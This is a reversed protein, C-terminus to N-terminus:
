NVLGIQRLRMTEDFSFQRDIIDERGRATRAAASRMVSNIDLGQSMARTTLRTVEDYDGQAQAEAIERGYSQVRDRLRTQDKWLESGVEWQTQVWTPSFGLIHMLTEGIGLGSISPYGTTMSRIVRDSETQLMRYVSRPTLARIFQDRNARNTFPTSGTDWWLDVAQDTAQALRRARDFFAFSTMFSMDQAPDSFPLAAQSSLTIGPLGVLTPVYASLGWMVADAPSGDRLDSDGLWDYLHNMFPEDTFMKSIQNAMMYIPTAAIGGVTTAGAIAWALPAMHGKSAAGAYEMLNFVYHTMWNKFLGFLSGLPTTFIRSRDATGYLFMTNHTFQKAFRYLNEGSLGMMDRGLMHGTLFAHTRAFKESNAPLWESLALLGRWFEGPEEFVRWLSEVNRSQEGVYEEFLRPAIVGDDAARQFDDLLVKRHAGRLAEPSTSGPSRMEKFTNRMFKLTDFVGMPGRVRNMSDIGPIMNYYRMMQPPTAGQVFAVHPIVTHMFTLANITPFALNGMGLQFSFVIDNVTRVIRTASDVGLWPSLVKDVLQNQMRSFTSPKGALDNLRASLTSFARPDDDALKRLIPEMLHNASAEAITRNAQRIHANLIDKLERKTWPAKDGVFGRQGERPKTFGPQGTRRTSYSAALQWDPTGVMVEKASALDDTQNRAWPEGQIKWAKGDRGAEAVIEDAERIAQGRSGGSAIYVTQGLENEVAARWDGKWTRSIMYHQPLPVLTPNNTLEMTRSYQDVLYDDNAQLDRMLDVVRESAGEELAEEPTRALRWQQHLQVVDADTLADIQQMIGGSPELGRGVVGLLSRSKLENRGYLMRESIQAARDYAIRSMSQAWAATANNRHQFMAPALYEDVFNRLVQKTVSSEGGLKLRAEMVRMIESKNGRLGLWTTIPVDNMARALASHVDARNDVDIKALGGYGSSNAVVDAWKSQGPLFRGPMDTKFLLWRDGRGGRSTGQIRRAMVFMGQEIERALYTQDDVQAYREFRSLLNRASSRSHATILRPFQMYGIDDRGYGAGDLVRVWDRGAGDSTDALLQTERTVTGSRNRVVGTQFTRNLWDSIDKPTGQLPRVTRGAPREVRIRRELEAINSELTPLEEPGAGERRSVLQRQQLQLPDRLDVGPIERATREIQRGGGAFAGIVGGAAGAILTDLGAQIAVEGVNNGAFAAVVPRSAEIPAFRLAERAATGRVPANRVLQQTLANVGESYRTAPSFVRGVAGPTRGLRAAGLAAGYPSAFGLLSSVFGGLPNEARYRQIDRAPEFGFLEPVSSIASGVFGEFPNLGRGLPVGTTPGGPAQPIPLPIDVM